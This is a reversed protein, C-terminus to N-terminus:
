RAGDKSSTKLNTCHVPLVNQAARIHIEVARSFHRVVKALGKLDDFLRVGHQQEDALLAIRKLCDLATLPLRLREEVILPPDDDEIKDQLDLDAPASM